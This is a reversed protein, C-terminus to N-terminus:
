DETEQAVRRRANELEPSSIGPSGSVNAARHL